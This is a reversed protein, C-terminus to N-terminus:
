FNRPEVLYFWFLPDALPICGPFWSPNDRCCLIVLNPFLSGSYMEVAMIVGVIRLYVLFEALHKVNTLVM